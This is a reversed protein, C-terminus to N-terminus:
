KEVFLVTQHFCWDIKNLKGLMQIKTQLRNKFSVYDM